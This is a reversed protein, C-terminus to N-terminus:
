IGGYTLEGTDKDRSLWSVGNKRSTVYVNDGDLSVTVSLDTHYFANSNNM